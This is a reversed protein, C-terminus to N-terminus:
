RQDIWLTIIEDRSRFRQLAELLTPTVALTRGSCIVSKTRQGDGWTYSLADYPIKDRGTVYSDILKIAVGKKGTGPLIQALRIGTKSSPLAGYRFDLPDSHQHTPSKWRSLNM